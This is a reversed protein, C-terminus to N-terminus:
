ALFILIDHENPFKTSFHVNKCMTGTRLPSWPFVMQWGGFTERGLLGSPGCTKAIKLLDNIDRLEDEATSLLRRRISVGRSAKLNDRILSRLQSQAGNDKQYSEHATETMRQSGNPLLSDTSHKLARAPLVLFILAFLLYVHEFNRRRGGIRKCCRNLERRVCVRAGKEALKGNGCSGSTGSGQSNGKLM